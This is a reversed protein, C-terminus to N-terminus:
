LLLLLKKVEDVTFVKAVHDNEVACLCLYGNFIDELIAKVCANLRNSASQFKDYKYNDEYIKDDIEHRTLIVYIM